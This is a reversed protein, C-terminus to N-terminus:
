QYLSDKLGNFLDLLIAKVQRILILDDPDEEDLSFSEEIKEYLDQNSPGVIEMLFNDDIYTLAEAIISDSNAFQNNTLESYGVRCALCNLKKKLLHTYEETGEECDDETEELLAWLLDYANYISYLQLVNNNFNYTEYIVISEEVYSLAERVHEDNAEILALFLDCTGIMNMYPTDLIIPNTKQIEYANKFYQKAKENNFNFNNSGIIYYCTILMGTEIVSLPTKESTYIKIASELCLTEIEKLKQILNPATTNMNLPLLNNTVFMSFFNALDINFLSPDNKKQLIDFIRYIEEQLHDLTVSLDEKNIVTDCFYRYSTMTYQKEVENMSDTKKIMIEWAKKSFHIIENIIDEASSLNMIDSFAIMVKNNIINALTNLDSEEARKEILAFSENLYEKSRSYNGQYFYAIGLNRLLEEKEEELDSRDSLINLAHLFYGEKIKLSSYSDNKMDSFRDKIFHLAKILLDTREAAYTYNVVSSILKHMYLTRADQDKKVLGYKRLEKVDKSIDFDVLTKLEQFTIGPRDFCSLLYLIDKQQETLKVLEFLRILHRSITMGSGRECDVEDTINLFSNTIEEVDYDCDAVLRACLEIMMTHGGVQESLFEIKKDTEESRPLQSIKYFLEKQDEPLMEKVEVNGLSPNRFNTNRSSFVVRFPITESLKNIIKKNNEEDFDANFNDFVLIFRPDMERLSNLRLCVKDYDDLKMEEETLPNSYELSLFEKALSLDHDDGCVKYCYYQGQRHDEVYKRVIETKGIGADGSVVVIKKDDYRFLKEIDDLESKRGVFEDGLTGMASNCRITSEPVLYDPIKNQVIRIMRGFVITEISKMDKEDLDCLYPFDDVHINFLSFAPAYNKRGVSDLIIIQKKETRALQLEDSIVKVDPANSSSAMTNETWLQMVIDSKRVTEVSWEMWDNVCGENDKDMYIVDLVADLDAYRKGDFRKAIAEAIARDKSVYCIMMRITRM